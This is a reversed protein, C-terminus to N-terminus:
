IKCASPNRAARWTSFRCMAAWVSLGRRVRKPPYRIPGLDASLRWTAGWSSRIPNMSLSACPRGVRFLFESKRFDRLIHGASELRQDPERERHAYVHRLAVSQRQHKDRRRPKAASLSTTARFRLWSMEPWHWAHKWSKLAPHAALPPESWASVRSPPKEGSCDDSHISVLDPMMATNGMGPQGAREVPAMSCGLGPHIASVPGHRVGEFCLDRARVRPIFQDGDDADLSERWRRVPARERSSRLVVTHM